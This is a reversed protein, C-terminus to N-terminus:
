KLLSRLGECYHKLVAIGVKYGDILGGGKKFDILMITQFMGLKETFISKVLNAFEIYESASPDIGPVILSNESVTAVLCARAGSSVALDRIELVGLELSLPVKLAVLLANSWGYIQPALHVQLLNTIENALEEGYNTLYAGAVLDISVIGARNLRKLLTRVSTESLNLFKSISKRGIPGSRKLLLMLYAIHGEHFGQLVGRM